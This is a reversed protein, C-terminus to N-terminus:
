AFEKKQRLYRATHNLWIGTCFRGGKLKTKNGRRLLSVYISNVLKRNSQRWSWYPRDFSFIDLSFISSVRCQTCAPLSYISSSYVCRFSFFHLILPSQAYSASSASRRPFAKTIWRAQAEVDAQGVAVWYLIVFSSVEQRYRSWAPFIIILPRGCLLFFFFLLCLM